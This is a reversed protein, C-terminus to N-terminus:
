KLCVANVFGNIIPHPSGPLSKTQPVFLTILFFNNSPIEIIRIEDDQDVGSVAIQPHALHQKFEPNISFNCYYNEKTENCGYLKHALTNKKLYVDMSKGALSCVLKNVFLSSSQSDYEEHQAEEIGLINRALEIVAHQFGACTGLHPIDNLRAYTIAYLAGDFSKFPSGPASWIGAYKKLIQDKEKEISETDIWEYEFDYEDNLYDLAKNLSTHPDFNEYYEGIVAIKPKM